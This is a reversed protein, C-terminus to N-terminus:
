LDLLRSWKKTRVRCLTSFGREAWVTAHLIAAIKTTEDVMSAWCPSQKVDSAIPNNL